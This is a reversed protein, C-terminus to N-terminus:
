TSEKESNVAGSPAGFTSEVMTEILALVSEDGRTEGRVGRRIALGSLTAQLLELLGNADRNALDPFYENARRRVLQQHRALLESLRARLEDDCRAANYLELVAAYSPDAYTEFLLRFGARFRDADPAVRAMAEQYREGIGVFLHEVAASLLAAKNPFHHLRAGRSVDARQEIRATTAGGYGAEILCALTADLLRTRTSASREAQTRRPRAASELALAEPATAM